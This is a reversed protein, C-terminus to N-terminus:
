ASERAAALRNKAKTLAGKAASRRREEVLRRQREVEVQRWADDKRQTMSDLEKRLRDAEGERFSMPHGNPCYFTRKDKRREVLFLLDSSCM